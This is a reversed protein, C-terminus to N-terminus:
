AGRTFSIPITVTEGASASPIHWGKVLDLLCRETAAAAPGSWTRRVIDASRVAGADGISLRLAVVGGLDTGGVREYCSQLQAVRTRVFAGMETADALAAGPAPASVIPLPQVHVDTHRIPAGSHVAGLSAASGARGGNLESRGPTAADGGAAVSAKGHSEPGVNGQVATARPILRVIENVLPKTVALGFAEAIGIKSPGSQRPAPEVRGYDKLPTSTRPISPLPLLGTRFEIPPLVDGPAHPRTTLSIPTLYVVLLWAGGMTAAIAWSVLRPVLDEDYAPFRVRDLRLAAVM